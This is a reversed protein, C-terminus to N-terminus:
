LRSHTSIRFKLSVAMWGDEDPVMIKFDSANWHTFRFHKALLKGIDEYLWPSRKKNM